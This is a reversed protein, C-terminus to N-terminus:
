SAEIALELEARLHGVTPYRDEPNSALARAFVRRLHEPLEGRKGVAPTAPDEVSQAPMQLEDSPPETTSGNGGERSDHAAYSSGSDSAPDGTAIAAAALEELEPREPFQGTLLKYFTVGLAFIDTGPSPEATGALLEPAAYAPTFCRVFKSTEPGSRWLWRALGFDTLKVAGDAGVLINAPKLDGHVVGSSHLYSVGSCVERVVHLRQRTDLAVGARLLHELSAGEVCEMVLFHLGSAVGRGYVTVVNPHDLQTLAEAERLFIDLFESRAALSPRLIKIAVPADDALRRARFVWAMGGCALREDIAYSGLRMGAGLQRLIQKEEDDLPATPTQCGATSGNTSGNSAGGNRKRPDLLALVGTLL